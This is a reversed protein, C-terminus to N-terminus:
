IKKNKKVYQERQTTMDLEKVHFDKRTKEPRRSTEDFLKSLYLHFILVCISLVLTFVLIYM